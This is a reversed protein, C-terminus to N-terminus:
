APYAALALHNSLHHYLLGYQYNALTCTAPTTRRTSCDNTVDEPVCKRRGGEVFVQVRGVWGGVWGGKKKEQM